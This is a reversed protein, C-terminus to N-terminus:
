EDGPLQRVWDQMPTLVFDQRGAATLDLSGKRTAFTVAQAWVRYNGTPLPPFYYNGAEDTYVTTTISSGAAKASVTVGGMKEGAASTVSGSLLADAARAATVAALGSAIAGSAIVLALLSAGTLNRAAGMADRRM